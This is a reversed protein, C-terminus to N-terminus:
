HSAHWPFSRRAAWRSPALSCWFASVTPAPVARGAALVTGCISLFSSKPTLKLAQNPPPQCPVVFQCVVLDRPGGWYAVPFRRHGAVRASASRCCWRRLFASGQCAAQRPLSGWLSGPGTCPALGSPLALRGRSPLPFTLHPPVIRAGSGWSLEPPRRGPDFLCAAGPQPVV